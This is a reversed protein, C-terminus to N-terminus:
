RQCELILHTYPIRLLDHRVVARVQGFARAAIARYGGEDRVHRGRDGALLARAIPSQGAAYCGDLTVLRGGPRLAAHALAFLHGAEADDLHHLIGLALVIDFERHNGLSEASVRQCYFRARAGFRASAAAVYDPNADFGVYDVEPLHALITAPGCGVDLVRQGRQARIHERAFIDRNRDGGVLFSFFRYASPRGLVSELRANV